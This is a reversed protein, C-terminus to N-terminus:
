LAEKAVHLYVGMVQLQLAELASSCAHSKVALPASRGLFNFELLDM